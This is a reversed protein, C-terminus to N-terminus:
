RGEFRAPAQRAAGGHRGQRRRQRQGHRRLRGIEHAITDRFTMERVIIAKMSKLSLPANAALRDIV